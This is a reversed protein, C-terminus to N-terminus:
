DYKLKQNESEFIQLGPGRPSSWRGGVRDPGLLPDDAHPTNRVPAPTTASWRDSEYQNHTRCRLELNQATATGGDAHPVVHHFELFGTEACRGHAGRFACQGGDRRWVERRVAAPIHRSRTSVTAAASRPRTTAGCKTKMLEAELLCLARDFIAGLDGDPILHRALDQVRRLRDRTDRSVTLQVKFREPALATVTSAAPRVPAHTVALTPPPMEAATVTSAHVSSGATCSAPLSCPAPSPLKRITAAVDPQPRLRAVLQEIERKTKHRADELLHLHNEATLHPALLSVASLHVSGDALRALIAPYRGAARAAEIRLYAAHESCHLGKLCYSFLSSYGLGAYLKRADVEALLAVVRATAARAQQTALTLEALLDSDPLDRPSVASSIM